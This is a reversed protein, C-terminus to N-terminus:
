HARRNEKDPTFFGREERIDKQQLPVTHVNNSVLLERFTPVADEGNCFSWFRRVVQQRRGRPVVWQIGRATIRYVRGDRLRKSNQKPKRYNLYSKHIDKIKQDTLQGSLVWDAQEIRLIEEEVANTASPNRSLADAHKMRAAPRYKVEFTFEQLQLWWKAIRPIIQKKLSTAKLANCDTIVTFQIELLYSRFKKLSEVVALTELEYSHCKQVGNTM